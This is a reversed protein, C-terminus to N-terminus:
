KQLITVVTIKEKSLLLLEPKVMYMSVVCDLPLTSYQQQCKEFSKSLTLIYKQVSLIRICMHTSLIRTCM